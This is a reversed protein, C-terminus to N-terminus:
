FVQLGCYQSVAHVGCSSQWNQGPPAHWRVPPIQMIRPATRTTLCADRTDQSIGGINEGMVIHNQGEGTAGCKRALRTLRSSYSCFFSSLFFCGLLDDPAVVSVFRRIRKFTRPVCCVNHNRPLPHTKPITSQTVETVTIVATPKM